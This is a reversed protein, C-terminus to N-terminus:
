PRHDLAAILVGHDAKFAAEMGVRVLGAVKESHAVIALGEGAEQSLFAAAHESARIDLVREQAAVAELVADKVGEVVADVVAEDM